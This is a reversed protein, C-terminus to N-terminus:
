SNWLPAPLIALPGATPGLSLQLPQASPQGRHGSNQQKNASAMNATWSIRWHHVAHATTRFRLAVFQEAQPGLDDLLALLFDTDMTVPETITQVAKDTPPLGRCTQTNKNGTGIYATQLGISACVVPIIPETQCAMGQMVAMNALVPPAEEEPLHLAHRIHRLMGARLRALHPGAFHKWVFAWGQTAIVTALVGVLFSCALSMLWLGLVTISNWPEGHPIHLLFAVPKCIWHIVSVWVPESNACLANTATGAFTGQLSAQAYQLAQGGAQFAAHATAQVSHKVAELRPDHPAMVMTRGFAATAITAVLAAATGTGYPRRVAVLAGPMNGVGDM